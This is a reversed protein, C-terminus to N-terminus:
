VEPDPLSSIKPQFTSLSNKPKPPNKSYSYQHKHNQLVDMDRKPIILPQRVYFKFNSSHIIQNSNRFLSPINNKLKFILITPLIFSATIEVFLIFLLFFIRITTKSVNFDELIFISPISFFIISYVSIYIIMDSFTVINRQYRGFKTPVKGDKSKKFFYFWSAGYFICMFLLEIIMFSTAEFIVRLSNIESLNDNKLCVKIVFPVEDYATFYRSFPIVYLLLSMSVTITLYLQEFLKSIKGNKM